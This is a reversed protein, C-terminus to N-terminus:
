GAPSLIRRATEPRMIETHTTPLVPMVELMAKIHPYFACFQAHPAGTAATVRDVEHRVLVWDRGGDDAIARYAVEEGPNGYRETADLVAQGPLVDLLALMVASDTSHIVGEGPQEAGGLLDLVTTDDDDIVKDISSVGGALASIESFERMARMVSQRSLSDHARSKAEETTFGKSIQRRTETDMLHNLVDDSTYVKQDRMGTSASQEVVHMATAVRKWEKPMKGGGAAFDIGKLRQRIMSAVWQAVTTGRSEDFDACCELAVLSGESILDDIEQKAWHSGLRHHAYEKTITLVLGRLSRMLLEGAADGTTIYGRLQRRVRPPLGEGTLSKRANLGFGYARALLAQDTDSLKVDRVGAHKAVMDDIRKSDPRPANQPSM